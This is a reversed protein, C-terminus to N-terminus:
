YSKTFIELIENCLELRLIIELVLMEVLQKCMELSFDHQM